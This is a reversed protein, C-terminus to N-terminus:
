EGYIVQQKQETEEPSKSAFCHLVRLSPVIRLLDSAKVGATGLQHPRAAAQGLGPKDGREGLLVDGGFGLLVAAHGQQGHHGGISRAGYPHRGDGLPSHPGEAAWHLDEDRVVTLPRGERCAHGPHPHLIAHSGQAHKPLWSLEGHAM